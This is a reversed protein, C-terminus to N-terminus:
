VALQESIQLREIGTARLYNAVTNLITINRKKSPYYVWRMGAVERDQRNATLRVIKQAYEIPNGIDCFTLHDPFYKRLEIFPTIRSCFLPRDLEIAMSAPGSATQGTELYPCLVADCVMMGILVDDDDVTGVFHVRRELNQESVLNILRALYPPTQGPAIALEHIGSFMLLQYGDPMFRLANIATDYGKHEGHFGFVGIYRVDGSKPLLTPLRSKTALEPLSRLFDGDMYSLPHHLVEVGPVRQRLKGADRESHTILTVRSSRAHDSIRRYLARWLHYRRHASISHHLGRVLGNQRVSRTLDATRAPSESEVSHFTVILSNACRLLALVRKIHDPYSRGFLGLELQINAIDFDKLKRATGTVYQEAGRANGVDHVM